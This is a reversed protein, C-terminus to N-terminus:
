QRKSAAPVFTKKRTFRLYCYGVVGSCLSANIVALKAAIQMTADAFALMTIFISVTFGIGAIIGVGFVQKLTVTGPIDAIKLKLAMYTAMFIGAPKGIFLGIFVGYHVPSAMAQLLNAPLTITTNALAFLPLIIFNVPVRLVRELQHIAPAPITFALVVGAITAHIGSNYVFYWLFVGAVLHPYAKTVKLFNLVLLVICVLLALSLYVTNLKAAYFVAITLIGGVDDIIAIATLFIRLSLPARKGLLSLVGLSFAIDTAMPIGWGSFNSKHHCCLLYIIAPLLMGGIASIVPMLSKKFSNLEGTLVERKIELGASFFFVAMLVENIYHLLSDPLRIGPVPAIFRHEWFSSYDNGNTINSLILSIATCCILLVGVVRSDKIFFKISPILSM